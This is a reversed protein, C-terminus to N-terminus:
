EAAESRCRCIKEPLVLKAETAAIVQEVSVRPGTELLTARGSPYGVLDATHTSTLPLTVHEPGEAQGHCYAAWTAGTVLDWGWGHWAGDQGPIMWNALYGSDVQMEAVLVTADVHGGRNLAISVASDFTSTGPLM